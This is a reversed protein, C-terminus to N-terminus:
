WFSAVDSSANRSSCDPPRRTKRSAEIEFGGQEILDIVAAGELLDALKCALEVGSAGAGVVALRQLPQRRLLLGARLGEIQATLQRQERLHKQREVEEARAKADSSKQRLLPTIM